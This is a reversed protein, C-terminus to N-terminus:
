WPFRPSMGTAGGMHRQLASSVKPGDGFGSTSLQNAGRPAITTKAWLHAQKGDRDGSHQETQSLCLKVLFRQSM